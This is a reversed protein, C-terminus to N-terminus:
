ININIISNKVGIFNGTGEIEITKTEIDVVPLKDIIIERSGKTILEKVKEELIDIEKKLEGNTDIDFTELEYLTEKM